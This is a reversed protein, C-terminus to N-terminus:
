VYSAGLLDIIYVRALAEIEPANAPQGTKRLMDAIEARVTHGVFRKICKDVVVLYDLIDREYAIEEKTETHPIYMSRFEHGQKRM